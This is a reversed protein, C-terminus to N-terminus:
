SDSLVNNDQLQATLGGDVVLSHGTVFSAQNSLLFRVATAIEVPEGGRGLPYTKALRKLQNEDFHDSDQTKIWGPCIANVRINHPGGDLAMQRTLNILGAKAAAYVPYNRISLLGHVSSINVIGGGGVKMM